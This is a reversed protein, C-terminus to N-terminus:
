IGIDLGSDNGSKPLIKMVKLRKLVENLDMELCYISVVLEKLHAFSLGKSEKVLDVEKIKGNDDKYRMITSKLKNELYMKRAIDSPLGIKVVRDFRSPRNVIRADLKEPYNTTAVFVVNDIQLEGDLIALIRSEGFQDIVADIDEWIVVIQRDPEVMRIKLLMDSLPSPHHALVVLGGRKITKEIIIAITCTKGSGQPGWLLFGRKHSFGYEKFKLKLKWFKEIEAIVEDSKSDPFRILNDTLINHPVLTNVNNINEIKYSGRPLIPITKSTPIFGPGYYSYQVPISIDVIEEKEKKEEIGEDAGDCYDRQESKKKVSIEAKEKGQAIEIFEDLDDM